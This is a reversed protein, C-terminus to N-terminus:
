GPRPARNIAFEGDFVRVVSVTSNAVATVPESPRSGRGRAAAPSTPRPAAGLWLELM